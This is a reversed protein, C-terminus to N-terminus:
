KISNEFFTYILLFYKLTNLNQFLFYVYSNLNEKLEKTTKKKLEENEARHLSYM